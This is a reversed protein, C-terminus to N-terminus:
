RARERARRNDVERAALERARRGKRLDVFPRTRDDADADYLLHRYEAAEGPTAPKGDAAAEPHALLWRLKAVSAEVRQRAINRKVEPLPVDLRSLDVTM